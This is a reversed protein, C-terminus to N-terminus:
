SGQLRIKRQVNATEIAALVAEAGKNGAKGGARDLAQEMTDTTLVGFIIPVDTKLAAQAIGSAAASCVYDYHSTAGRVVAGLCVVADYQGSQALAQAALPIEFAGPVYVECLDDPAGGCREWASKAGEALRATVLENFRAVVVAIRMNTIELTGQITM